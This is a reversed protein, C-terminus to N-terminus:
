RRNVTQLKIFLATNTKPGGQPCPLTECCCRSVFYYKVVVLYLDQMNEQTILNRCSCFQTCSQNLLETYLHHLRMIVILLEMFINTRSIISSTIRRKKERNIEMLRSLGNHALGQHVFVCLYAYAYM